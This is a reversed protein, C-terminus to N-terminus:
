TLQKVIVCYQKPDLDVADPNPSLSKASDPDLCFNEQGFM